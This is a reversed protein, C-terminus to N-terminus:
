TAIVPVLKEPADATLKPPLAASLKVTFEAVDIEATDGTPALVTSIVTVVAPPVEAVDAFSWNVYEAEATGVTTPTDGLEPGVVPPVTTVMLPVFKVVVPAATLNPPVLAVPTVTTLEVEMVAVAGAPATPIASTVTVFEIPM